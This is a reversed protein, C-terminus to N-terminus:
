YSSCVIITIHNDIFIYEGEVRTFEVEDISILDEYLMEGPRLGVIKINDSILNALDKLYIKKM